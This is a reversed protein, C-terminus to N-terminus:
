IAKFTIEAFKGEPISYYFRGSRTLGVAEGQGEPKYPLGIYARKICEPITENEKRDWYYINIYTKVVVVKGDRSIDGATVWKSVKPANFFLEAEKKLTIILGAKSNLPASYVGVSDERKSIIYIKQDRKDVMLCEADRSGNPYKFKLEEVDCIKLEKKSTIKVDPETLKFISIYPRAAKNDGIDGVFIKSNGGNQYSIAIDECDKVEKNFNYTAVTNGKDDILFIRSNDGSDNHVWMLHDSLTSVAIGSCENINDDKLKQNQSFAFGNVFLVIILLLKKM